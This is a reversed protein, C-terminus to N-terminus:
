ETQHTPAPRASTSVTGATRPRVESSKEPRYGYSEATFDLSKKADDTAFIVWDGDIHVELTGEHLGTRYGYGIGFNSQDDETPSKSSDVESTITGEVETDASSQGPVPHGTTIYLTDDVMVQPPQDYSETEAGCGTLLLCALLLPIRKKM